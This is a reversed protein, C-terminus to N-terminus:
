PAGGAQPDMRGLNELAALGMNRAAWARRSWLAVVALALVGTAPMLAVELYQGHLVVPFLKLFLKCSERSRALSFDNEVSLLVFGMGRFLAQTGLFVGAVGIGCLALALLHRLRVVRLWALVVFTLGLPLLFQVVLLKD